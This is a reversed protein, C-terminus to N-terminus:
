KLKFLKEIDFVKMLSVLIEYEFVNNVYNEENSSIIFFDDNVKAYTPSEM